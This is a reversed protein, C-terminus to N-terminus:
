VGVRARHAAVVAQGLSIGGDGAPVQRHTFVRLGSAGLTAVLTEFLLLNQLAGGSLCVRDLGTRSAVRVAVQTFTEALGLHFRRAIAETAVSREMDTLLEELMPGPCVILRGDRDAIEFDYGGTEASDRAAMELEIAAQAEYTVRDRVGVLAAIADFLRGCSSTEPTNVGCELMRLVLKVDRQRRSWLLPARVRVADAGQYHALYSVAM